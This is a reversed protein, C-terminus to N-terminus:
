REGASPGAAPDSALARGLDIEADRSQLGRQLAAAILRQQDRRVPGRGDRVVITELDVHRPQNGRGTPDSM